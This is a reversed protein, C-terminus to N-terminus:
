NIKVDIPKAKESKPINVYLVGDKYEASVKSPDINEDLQIRRSFKGYSREILHHVEDKEEKELKHEGSIDLVGNHLSLKIDEKKMGPLEASIMYKDPTEKIDCLIGKFDRKAIQSRPRRPRMFFDFDDFLKDFEKFSTLSM